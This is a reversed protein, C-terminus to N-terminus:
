KVILFGRNCTLAAKEKTREGVNSHEQGGGM